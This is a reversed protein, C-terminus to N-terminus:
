VIEVETVPNNKAARMLMEDAPLADWTEHYDNSIIPSPVIPARAVVKKPFRINHDTISPFVRDLEEVEGFVNPDTNTLSKTMSM